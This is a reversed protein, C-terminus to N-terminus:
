SGGEEADVVKRRRLERVYNIEREIDLREEETEGEMLDKELIGIEDLLGKLDMDEYNPYTERLEEMARDDYEEPEVEM